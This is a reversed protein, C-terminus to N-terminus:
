KGAPEGCKAVTRGCETGSVKELIKKLMEGHEAVMKGIAEDQPGAGDPKNGSIKETLGATIIGTPIAVAALGSFAIFAGIVRGLGTIPYIDGYGVTTLTAVAWWLGSFANRFVEPQADHEASYMLLSSVLMLIGLVFMSCLLESKKSAMVEGLMKMAAFYRNLKFIRLLRVLRLARIGLMTGPLLMPLWFPLIAVLDVIAMPSAIYKIRSAIAGCEPHLFDATVIRLVYEVTFVVSAISELVFLVRRTEPQLDFTGAFVIVVSALILVTMLRDFFRSLASTGNDPQIIEFIRKRLIM